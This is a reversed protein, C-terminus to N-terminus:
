DAITVAKERNLYPYLVGFHLELILTSITFVAVVGAWVLTYSHHPSTGSRIQLCLPLFSSNTWSRSVDM